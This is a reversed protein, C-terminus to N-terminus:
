NVYNLTKIIEQSIDDTIENKHELVCLRLHRRAIIYIATNIQKRALALATHTAQWNKEFQKGIIVANITARAIFLQTIIKQKDSDVVEIKMRM